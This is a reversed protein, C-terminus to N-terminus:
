RRVRTWRTGSDDSASDTKSPADDRLDIVPEDPEPVSPPTLASGDDISGTAPARIVTPRATPVPPPDLPRVMAEETMASELQFPRVGHAQEDRDTPRGDNTGAAAARVIVDVAATPAHRPSVFRYADASEAHVTMTGDAMLEITTSCTPLEDITEALVIPCQRGPERAIVQLLSGEHEIWKPQDVFVLQLWDHGPTRWSSIMRDTAEISTALHGDAAYHPAWKAWDWDVLDTEEAAIAFRVDEASWRSCVEAAIARALALRRNRPGAIGVPGATLDITVPVSALVDNADVVAQLQSELVFDSEVGIKWPRDGYGVAVRGFDHEDAHRLGFTQRAKARRVLDPLAPHENRLDGAVTRRERAVKRSFNEITTAAEARMAAGQVIHRNRERLLLVFAAVLAVGAALFFTPAVVAGLVGLIVCVPVLGLWVRQPARDDMRPLAVPAIRRGTAIPARHRPLPAISTSADGEAPPASVRYRAGGVIFVEHGIATPGDILVNDVVIPGGRPLVTVAGRDGVLLAFASSGVADAAFEHTGPALPETVPGGHGALKDLSVVPPTAGATSAESRDLDIVAGDWIEAQVLTQWSPVIRGDVMLDDGPADLLDILTAVTADNPLVAELDSREGSFEIRLRLTIAM